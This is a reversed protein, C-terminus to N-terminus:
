EKLLEGREDSFCSAPLFRNESKKSNNAWYWDESKTDPYFDPVGHLYDGRTFVEGKKATGIDKKLIINKM